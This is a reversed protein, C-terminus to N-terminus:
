PPLDTGVTQMISNMHPMRVGTLVIRIGADALIRDSLVPFKADWDRILYTVQTGAEDPDTV